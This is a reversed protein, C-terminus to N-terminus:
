TKKLILSFKRTGLGQYFDYFDVWMNFEDKTLKTITWVSSRESGFPGISNEIKFNSDKTFYISVLDQNHAYFGWQGIFDIDSNKINKLKIKWFYESVNYIEDTFEIDCGLRNYFENTSDIDNIYLKDLKWTGEIRSQASRFTFHPGDDYTKGCSVILIIIIFISLIKKM